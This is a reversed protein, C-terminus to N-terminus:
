TRALLDDGRVIAVAQQWTIKKAGKCAGCVPTHDPTYGDEILGLSFLENGSGLCEPCDVIDDPKHPGQEKLVPGEAVRKFDPLGALVLRVILERWLSELTGPFARQQQMIWSQAHFRESGEGQYLGVLVRQSNETVGLLYACQCRNPRDDSLPAEGLQGLLPFVTFRASGSSFRILLEPPVPLDFSYPAGRIFDPSLTAFFDSM